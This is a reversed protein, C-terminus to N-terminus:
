FWVVEGFVGISSRTMQRPGRDALLVCSERVNRIFLLLIGYEGSSRPRSTGVSLALPPKNDLVVTENSRTFLNQGGKALSVKNKLNYSHHLHCHRM